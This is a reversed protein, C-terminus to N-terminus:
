AHLKFDVNHVHVVPELRVTREGEAAKELVCHACGLRFGHLPRYCSMKRFSPNVFTSGKKKSCNNSASRLAAHIKNSLIAFNGIFGFKKKM